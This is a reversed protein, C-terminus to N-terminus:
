VLKNMKQKSAMGNKSPSYECNNLLYIMVLGFSAVVIQFYTMTRMRKDTYYYQNLILCGFIFALCVGYWVKSIGTDIKPKQYDFRTSKSGDLLSSDETSSEGMDMLENEKSKRKLQQMISMSLLKNKRASM